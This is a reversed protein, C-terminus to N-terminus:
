FNYQNHKKLILNIKGNYDSINFIWNYNKIKRFYKEKIKINSLKNHRKHCWNWLIKDLYIDLEYFIKFSNKNKKSIVWRKIISNLKIILKDQTLGRSKCLTKKLKSKYQKISKKSPTIFSTYNQKLKKKLQKCKSQILQQRINFDLFIFGSDNKLKQTYIIQTKKQNLTLGLPKLFKIIIQKASEVIKRNIHMLLFNKNYRVFTFTHLNSIKYGTMQLIYNKLKYELGHLAINMLLYFITSNYFTKKKYKKNFIGIKFWITLQTSIIKNANCKQILYQYNLCNFYNEISGNLIWKAQKLLTFQVKKIIKDKKLQSGDNNPEFQPEWQPSLALTVLIQKAEHTIHILNVLNKTHNFKSLLRELTFNKKTDIKVDLKLEKILTFIEKIILKNYSKNLFKYKYFNKHIIKRIAFFKASNSNVLISQLKHVKKWEKNKSAKYIRIQLLFIRHKIKLWKNNKWRNIIQM